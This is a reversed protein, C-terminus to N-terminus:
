RDFIAKWLKWFTKKGYLIIESIQLDIVDYEVSDLATCRDVEM